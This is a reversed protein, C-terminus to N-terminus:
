PRVDERGLLDARELAQAARAGPLGEENLDVMFDSFSSDRESIVAPEAPWDIGFAPDDWRAGREAEPAYFSDMQYLVETGDTLTL